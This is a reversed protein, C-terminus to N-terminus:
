RKTPDGRYRRHNPDPNPTEAFFPSTAALAGSSPSRNSRAIKELREIESQSEARMQARRKSLDSEVSEGGEVAVVPSLRSRLWDLCHRRAYHYRLDLPKAAYHEWIVEELMSVLLESDFIRLEDALLQLMQDPTAAM